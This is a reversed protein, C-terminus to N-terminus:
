QFFKSVEYPVADRRAGLSPCRGHWEDTGRTPSM